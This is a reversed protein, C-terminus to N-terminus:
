GALPFLLISFSNRMDTEALLLDLTGELVHQKILSM